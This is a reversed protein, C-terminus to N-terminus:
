ACMTLLSFVSRSGSCTHASRRLFHFNSAHVAPLQGSKRDPTWALPQIDHLASFTFGTVGQGVEVVEGAIDSGLVAPYKDVFIGFQQIKWDVPNLATAYVKVLLEATGPTPVPRKRVVFQGQKSELFLANQQQM